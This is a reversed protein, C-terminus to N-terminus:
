EAWCVKYVDDHIDHFGADILHQKQESVVDLSKGFKVSAETCLTVWKDVNPSKAQEADDQNKESYISAEYEQFEAWGGPKLNDYIRSYLLGFNSVSGGIARGHIFDFAEDPGFTWESEFDDVYFQCNPPVDAPQIPSLDTGVVLASPLEDAVDIAWAGTGTGFDLVRQPDRGIPARFLQGGVVLRFVHHHLDLRDQEAEDNPMPYKGDRYAHYRRGNEYRYDYISSTV